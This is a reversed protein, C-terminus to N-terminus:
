NNGTLLASSRRYSALWLIPSLRYPTSHVGVGKYVYKPEPKRRAEAGGRSGTVMLSCRTVGKLRCSVVPLKRGKEKGKWGVGAM